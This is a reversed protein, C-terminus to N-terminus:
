IAKSQKLDFCSPPDVKKPIGGVLSEISYGRSSTKTLLKRYALKYNCVSSSSFACKECEPCYDENNCIKNEPFLPASQDKGKVQNVKATTLDKVAGLTNVPM